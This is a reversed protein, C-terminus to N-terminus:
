QASKVWTVRNGEYSPTTLYRSNVWGTIYQGECFSSPATGKSCWGIEVWGNKLRVPLNSGPMEWGGRFVHVNKAKPPLNGVVSSKATAEKRVNLVDTTGVNSVNFCQIGSEWHDCNGKIEGFQYHCAEEGDRGVFVIQCSKMSWDPDACERSFNEPSCSKGIWFSPQAIGHILRDNSKHTLCLM